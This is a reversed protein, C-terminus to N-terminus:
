KGIYFQPSDSTAELMDTRITVTYGNQSKKMDYVNDGLKIYAYSSEIDTTWTIKTLANETTVTVANKDYPVASFSDASLSEFVSAYDITKMREYNFYANSFTYEAVEIIVCDPQFANFYYDFDIINQYDHVFIYEGFANICFDKGYSNMYSGQFVLARPAGNQLNESNVYYGFTHYQEDLQLSSYSSTIDEYKCRTHIVPVDEDIPFESVLLSTKKSVSTNFEDLEGIHIGPCAECLKELAARTGYYAGLYNWHNADYKQNFVAEGRETAERLTVTNDVYNVCRADLEAFFKDVWTRNYNIGDALKDTLVAPKAPDFVFLFPVNREECYDQIEKLMDAYVVHFDSFSDYVTIGSGFVYGDKGYSYTPHVMKNFIRDNLLTYALIMKDRLGIRDNIYSEINETLDGSAEFPNEALKRNDIESVADNTFNFLVIPVAIIAAFLIITLLRLPKM